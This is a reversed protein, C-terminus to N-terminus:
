MLEAIPTGYPLIPMPRGTHDLFSTNNHDIGLHRFMTAWLDNPTLPRDRPEEGRSNTSGIVQGTRMGGGSVLVSMAQPWHDRGPRGDAYSLRPTRGFEGTVILLVRRDLGRDYLDDILATIARDYMPFRYLSDTFIHCNVAHSDWNYTVDPPFSQGPFSPNELVATVFSAGAEVLRRALLCRQGYRHIGYRERVRRPEQSLDFARRTVDTTLLDLARHRYSDIAAMTGSADHSVPTADLRGLLDLRDQLRPPPQTLNLNRLAFSPEAPDGGVIFPHTQPGLYASGFSFVDVGERGPDTCAIYNPVVGPRQGRVRFVMSGVMPYDNEFGVPSRPDRGTLFRKHGGGHDAFNHRISRIINFRDAVRTHLPLHECVDLGPIVTGVPRFAGRYESPANPKLDYTEMHPPGGPLWVLIVATEATQDGPETARLKWPMVGQFGVGGLTLAGVKLFHRRSLPGPCPRVSQTM